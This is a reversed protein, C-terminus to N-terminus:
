ERTLHSLRNHALRETAGEDRVVEIATNELQWPLNRNIQVEGDTTMLRGSTDYQAPTQFLRKHRDYPM